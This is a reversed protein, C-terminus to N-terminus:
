NYVDGRNAEHNCSMDPLSASIVAVAGGGGVSAMMPASASAFASAASTATDAVASASASASTSTASTASAERRMDGSDGAAEAASPAGADTTGGGALGGIGTHASTSTDACSVVRGASERVKGRTEVSSRREIREAMEANCTALQVKRGWLECGWVGNQGWGGVSRM